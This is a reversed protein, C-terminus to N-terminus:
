PFVDGVSQAFQAHGGLLAVTTLFRAQARERDNKPKRWGPEKVEVAAFQGIIQGVMDSTILRPFIGILDSSKWNESVRSSINGLGYRVMRGTEDKLAGNNNRWLEAGRRPAEVQLHSQVAEETKLPTGTFQPLVRPVDLMTLLETIAAQGVGHRMAWEHITQM